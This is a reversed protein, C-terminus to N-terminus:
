PPDLILHQMEGLQDFPEKQSPKSNSHTILHRQLAQKYQFSNECFTCSYTRGSHKALKHSRMTSYNVFIMSCHPCPHESKTDKNESLKGHITEMHQKLTHSNKALFGCEECQCIKKPKKNGPSVNSTKATLTKDKGEKLKRPPEYKRKHNKLVHKKFEEGDECNEGCDPCLIDQDHHLPDSMVERWRIMRQSRSKLQDFPKTVRPKPDTHIKSHRKLRDRTKFIKRCMTCTFTRGSHAAVNHSRMTSKTAFTKSCNKCPIPFNPNAEKEQIRTDDKENTSHSEMFIQESHKSLDEPESEEELKVEPEKVGSDWSFRSMDMQFYRTTLHGIGM